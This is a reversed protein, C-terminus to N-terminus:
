ENEQFVHGRHDLVIRPTDAPNSDSDAGVGHMTSLVKWTRWRSFRRCNSLHRRRASHLSAVLAGRAARKQIRAFVEKWSVDARCAWIQREHFIPWAIGAVTNSRFWIRSGSIKSANKSCWRFP